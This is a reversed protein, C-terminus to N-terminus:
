SMLLKQEISTKMHWFGVQNVTDGEDAYILLFHWNTELKNSINVSVQCFWSSCVQCSQSLRQEKNFISFFSNVFAKSTENGLM